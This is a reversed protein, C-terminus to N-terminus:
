LTPCAIRRGTLGRAASGYSDVRTARRAPIWAAALALTVAASFVYSIPNLPTVGLLTSQAARAAAALGALGLPVGVAALRLSEGLVLGEIQRPRAGLAVDQGIQVGRRQTAVLEARGELAKAIDLYDPRGYQMYNGDDGRSSVTYLDQPRDAAVRQLLVADGVAFLGTTLGIGLAISLM